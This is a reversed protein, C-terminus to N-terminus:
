GPLSTDLWGFSVGSPHPDYSGLQTRRDRLREVNLLHRVLAGLAM